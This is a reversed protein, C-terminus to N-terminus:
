RGFNPDARGYDFWARWWLSDSDGPDADELVGVLEAGMRRHFNGVRYAQSRAFDTAERRLWGRAPDSIEEPLRDFVLLDLLQRQLKKGDVEGDRSLVRAWEGPDDVCRMVHARMGTLPSFTTVRPVEAVVGCRRIMEVLLARGAGLGRPSAALAYPMVIDAEPFDREPAAFLQDRTELLQEAASALVVAVPFGDLDPHMAVLVLGHEATLAVENASVSSRFVLDLHMVIAGRLVADASLDEPNVHRTTLDPM